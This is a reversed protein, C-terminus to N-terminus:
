ISPPGRLSSYRTTQAYPKDNYSNFTLNLELRKISISQPETPVLGVGAAIYDCIECTHEAACYHLGKSACHIESLHGLEHQVKEVTPILLLALLLM